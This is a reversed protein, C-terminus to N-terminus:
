FLRGCFDMPHKAGKKRNCDPCAIVLNDISNSGGLVLPIVHDAHMGSESLKAQCYFCRGKQRAVQEKIEQATHSGDNGRERARRNRHRVAGYEPHAASWKRCYANAKEPNNARWRRARAVDEARHNQAYTKKHVKVAEPHQKKWERAAARLKDGRKERARKSYIAQKGRNAREWELTAQRCCTKCRPRLGDRGQKHRSFHELDAPLAQGCKTCVKLPISSDTDSLPWWRQTVDGTTEAVRPSKEILAM